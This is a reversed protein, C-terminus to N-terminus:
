YGGTPANTVAQTFGVLLLFAVLSAPGALFGFVLGWIAQNRNLGNLKSANSLGVFGFIVALLAPVWFLFGGIIPILGLVFGIAGLVLAAVAMGNSSPRPALQIYVQHSSPQM